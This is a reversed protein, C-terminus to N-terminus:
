KKEAAMYRFSFLKKALFMGLVIPIRGNRDALIKRVYPVYIYLELNYLILKLIERITRSLELSKLLHLGLDIKEKSHIARRINHM